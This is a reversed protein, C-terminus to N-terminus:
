KKIEYEIKRCDREYYNKIYKVKLDFYVEFWSDDM